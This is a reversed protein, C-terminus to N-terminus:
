QLAEVVANGLRDRTLVTKDLVAKVGYASLDPLKQPLANSCVIIRVDALDAHSQIAHLVQVGNAGPLLMDLLVVDVSDEDLMDLAQQADTAHLTRHGEAQLWKQYCDALLIEDEVILVTAM